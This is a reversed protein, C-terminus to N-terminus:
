CYLPSAHRSEAPERIPGSGNRQRFSLFHDALADNVLSAVEQYGFEGFVHSLVCLSVESPSTDSGLVTTTALGGPLPLVV